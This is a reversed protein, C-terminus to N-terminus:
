KELALLFAMCCLNHRTIGLMDLTNNKTQQGETSSRLLQDCKEHKNYCKNRRSTSPSVGVRNSSDVTVFCLLYDLYLERLLLSKLEFCQSLYIIHCSGACLFPTLPHFSEVLETSCVSGVNNCLVFSALFLSYNVACM